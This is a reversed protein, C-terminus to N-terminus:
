KVRLADPIPIKLVPHYPLIQAACLFRTSNDLYFLEGNKEEFYMNTSPRSKAIDYVQPGSFKEQPYIRIWSGERILLDNKDNILFKQQSLSSPQYLNRPLDAIDQIYIAKDKINIRYINQPYFAFINENDSNSWTIRTPSDVFLDSIDEILPPNEKLNVWLFKHKDSIGTELIVFPSKPSSFLRILSGTAYISNKSFLSIKEYTIEENFNEKIGQTTHFIDINKLLPNTAVLTDDGAIIINQYPQNSITKIPWEQPILLTNALVTAKKGIVPIKREWDNYGTLEIRIFHDGPTLDRIVTPTTLHVLHGDMYVTADPPNTSVYILGTKVLCHTLPNVAFGLMRAVILPCLILYVLTLIYFIIKRFWPMVWDYSLIALCDIAFLRSLCIKGKHFTTGTM